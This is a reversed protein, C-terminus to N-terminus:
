INSTGTFKLWAGSVAGTPVIVTTGNDSATSASNFWYMGQGGDGSTNTGCCWVVMGSLATFTRLGAINATWQVYTNYTDAGVAGQGSYQVANAPASM